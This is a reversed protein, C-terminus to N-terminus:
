IQIPDLGKGAVGTGCNPCASNIINYSGIQYGVREILLHGCEHCVTSEHGSGPMNGVYVYHLGAEKGIEYARMLTESPTPYSDTRQFDPHFRSIHWPVEPGLEEALFGAIQKLEEQGDNIQPIVLTTIELWINTHRAIYRLTELVPTLSAKCHQRYFEERFSKLDVNIGDLFDRAFKLAEITMYGNSVFVNALGQKKALRGCDACIEMFITPETYTFSISRCRNQLAAEVIQAPPYSRGSLTKQQRPMQSIQWNQCFDCQFNCGGTAVSLSRSGPQFHFLPKKEIPDIATSCIAHYNLSYLKGEVNRRVRCIGVQGEKIRCRFNCLRCQVQQHELAEWLVAEKKPNNM